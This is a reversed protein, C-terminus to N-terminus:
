KKKLSVQDWIQFRLKVTNEGLRQCRCIDSDIEVAVAERVWSLNGKCKWVGAEFM